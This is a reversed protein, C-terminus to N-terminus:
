LNNKCPKISAIFSEYDAVITKIKEFDDASLYISLVKMKRQLNFLEFQARSLAIDASIKGNEYQAKIFNLEEISKKEVDIFDKQEFLM